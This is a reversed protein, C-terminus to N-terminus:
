RNALKESEVSGSVKNDINNARHSKYASSSYICIAIRVTLMNPKFKLIDKYRKALPEM